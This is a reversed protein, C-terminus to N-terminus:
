FVKVEGDRIETGEIRLQGLEYSMLPTRGKAGNLFLSKANGTRLSVWSPSEGAKSESLVLGVRQHTKNRRKWFEFRPYRAFVWKYFQRM